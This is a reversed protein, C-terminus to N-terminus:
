CFPWLPCISPHAAHFTEEHLRKLGLEQAEVIMQTTFAVINAEALAIRVPDHQHEEQYLKDVGDTILPMFHGQRCDQTFTFGFEAARHQAALWLLRKVSAKTAM